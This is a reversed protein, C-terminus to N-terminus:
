SIQKNNNKHKENSRNIQNKKVCSRAKYSLSAEFDPVEQNLRGLQPIVTM